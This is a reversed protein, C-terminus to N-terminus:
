VCGWCVVEGTAMDRVLMPRHGTLFWHILVRM